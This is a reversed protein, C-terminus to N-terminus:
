PDIVRIPTGDLYAAVAEVADPYFVSYSADTVYGLHPTAVVNPLSRFPHGPPLPEDAFVDLAAGAIANERCAAVLADEDCIPGRSTNVLWATPRMLALEDAGILGRTRESLVLHISVVDASGLLDNLSAAREVGAEACREDTLHHSWAVVEMDSALGLRAVASGLRGLGLVGLRRGRVSRGVSTMWGGVRLNPIEVDLRRMATLILGWALDATDLNGGGTGCVTVGLQNAAAVDISANRAGTTVLLRLRPLRALLSRPFPTRERMAVVAEFDHLEAAADDESAFHRDFVTLDVRGDLQAWDAFELAARQYDDLIAIRAATAM